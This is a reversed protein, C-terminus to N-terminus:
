EYGEVQELAEIAEVTGLEPLGAAAAQQALMAAWGAGPDEVQAILEGEDILQVVEGTLVPVAVWNAMGAAYYPNVMQVYM